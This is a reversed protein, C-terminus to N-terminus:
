GQSPLSSRGANAVCIDRESSPLRNCEAVASQYNQLAAAAVREDTTTSALDNM